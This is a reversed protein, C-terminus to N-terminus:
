NEVRVLESEASLLYPSRPPSLTTHMCLAYLMYRTNKRAPSTGPTCTLVSPSEVCLVVDGALHTRHGVDKRLVVPLGPVVSDVAQPLMLVGNLPLVLLIGHGLMQVDVMWAVNPIRVAVRADGSELLPELTLYRFPDRYHLSILPDLLVPLLVNEHIRFTFM